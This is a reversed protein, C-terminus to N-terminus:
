LKRTVEKGNEYYISPMEEGRKDYFIWEGDQKGKLYNGQVRLNGNEYWSQYPGHYRDEIFSCEQKLQGNLYWRRLPGSKVGGKYTTEAKKEGNDYWDFYLGNKIAPHVPLYILKQALVQTGNVENHELDRVSQIEQNEISNIVVTESESERQCGVWSISLGILVIYKM